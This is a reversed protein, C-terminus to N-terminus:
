ANSDGEEHPNYSFMRGFIFYDCSSETCKYTYIYHTCKEDWPHEVSKSDFTLTIHKCEM